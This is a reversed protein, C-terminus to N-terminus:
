HAPCVAADLDKRLPFFSMTWEKRYISSAICITLSTSNHHTTTPTTVHSALATKRSLPSYCIIAASVFIVILDHSISGGLPIEIWLFVFSISLLQASLQGSPAAELIKIPSQFGLSQCQVVEPSRLSEFISEIEMLSIHFFFFVRLMM